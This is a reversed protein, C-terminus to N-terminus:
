VERDKTQKGFLDSLNLYTLSKNNFLHQGLSVIEDDSLINGAINLGVINKWDKAAVVFNSDPLDNMSVDIKVAQL